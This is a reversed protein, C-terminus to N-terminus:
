SARGLSSESRLIDALADVMSLALGRRDIQRRDTDFARTVDARRDAVKIRRHSGRREPEVAPSTKMSPRM